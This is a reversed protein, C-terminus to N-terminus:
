REKLCEDDGKGGKKRWEGDRFRNRRDNNNENIEIKNGEEFGWWKRKEKECDLRNENSREWNNRRYKEGRWCNRVKWKRKRVRCKKKKKRIGKRYEKEM